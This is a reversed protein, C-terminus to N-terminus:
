FNMKLNNDVLFKLGSVINEADAREAAKVGLFHSHIVGKKCTRIFWTEQELVAKDTSGDGIVTVFKADLVIKSINKFEVEAISKIFTKASNINRYTQGVDLGKMEDVECAWIFDSIPRDHLVLSHSTRFMTELKKYIDKNLSFIIQAADCKEIPKAKNKVTEEAKKHIKSAEHKVISDLKYSKCGATFSNENNQEKFYLCVMGTDTDILWPRNQTWENLFQRSRKSKDYDKFYQTRQENPFQRKLPM